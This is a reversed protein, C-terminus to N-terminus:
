HPILGGFYAGAGAALLVFVVLAAVIGGKGSSRMDPVAEGPALSSLQGPPPLSSTPPPESDDSSSPPTSSSRRVRGSLPDDELAALNGIEFGDGSQERKRSAALGLNGLDEGWDNPANFGGIELPLSGVVSAGTSSKRDGSSDISTFELMAEDILTGIISQRKQLRRKHEREKRIPDVLEAIDFSSVSRGLKFLLENLASGFDRARPYRQDPEETLAKMLVRELEVPVKPNIQRISPVRASQVMRVTELDSEGMFLRRGALLEWLIIGVAFIDTRADVAGGKAAEPSLYSFKGKIIGPESRELQSNAKALGFDVIKVEGFRTILVNPPSMDRHVIHLNEGKSDVLEHAYALGECIRVCILCAEEIPFPQNHKRRHEIVGKLDSGDVYEMVIFYTNDGVGIDFVQVCNSHSLHASVRAEDLFMGIFQKKESLHPLVRKIAVIKKFGELGASEARYVEAMGGAAVKELVKYRQQPTAM